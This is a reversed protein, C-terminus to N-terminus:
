GAERPKTRSQATALGLCVSFWAANAPIHLNFDVFSHVLFGSCGLAGGFQIWGVSYALREKLNRFALRVFIVIGTALLLGGVLGTEALGEAYDDHAHEWFADTAFSRYQPFMAGFSGMGTGLWPHDRLIGLSDRTAVLRQGLTIEPTQAINAVTVLRKAIYGPDIWVFLTAGAALGLACALAPYRWHTPPKLGVLVLAFILVESILAILGGRSGSLLMSALAISLAFALFARSLGRSRRTFAYAASIPILLEMLGAYDNHNVYPGFVNSGGAPKITWYVLGPATLFQFIAFLALGFAYLTVVLGFRRWARRSAGAFLQGALFFLIFDTVLKILAERTAFSDRTLGTFFQAVGLALFIIAPWYLPSWYIRLVGQRLGAFGWLTLTALALLTVSAWAWTQVAGFALPAGFLTAVLIFRVTSLWPSPHEEHRRAMGAPTTEFDMNESPFPAAM